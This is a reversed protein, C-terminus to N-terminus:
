GTRRRPDLGAGERASWSPTVATGPRGVVAAPQSRRDAGLSARTTDDGSSRRLRRHRHPQPRSRAGALRSTSTMLTPRRLFRWAPRQPQRDIRDAADLVVRDAVEIPGDAFWRDLLRDIDREHTM